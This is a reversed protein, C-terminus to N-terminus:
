EKMEFAYGIDLYSHNKNRFGAISMYAFARRLAGKFKALIYGQKRQCLNTLLNYNYQM